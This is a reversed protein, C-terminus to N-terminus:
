HRHPERRRRKLKRADDPTTRTTRSITNSRNEDRVPEASVLVPRHDAATRTKATLKSKRRKKEHTFSTTKHCARATHVDPGAATEFKSNDGETATLPGGRGRLDAAIIILGCDCTRYFIIDINKRATTYPVFNFKVNNSTIM